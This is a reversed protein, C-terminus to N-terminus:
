QHSQQFLPISHRYQQRMQRLVLPATLDPHRRRPQYRNLHSHTQQHRMLLRRRQRHTQHPFFLQERKCHLRRQHDIGRPKEQRMLLHHL